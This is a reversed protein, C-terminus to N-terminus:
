ELIQRLRILDLNERQFEGEVNSEWGFSQIKNSWQSDLDLVLIIEIFLFFSKHFKIVPGNERNM